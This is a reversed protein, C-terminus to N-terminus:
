NVLMSNGKRNMKRMIENSLGKAEEETEEGFSECRHQCFLVAGTAPIFVFGVRRRIIHDIVNRAARLQSGM